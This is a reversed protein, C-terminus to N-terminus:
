KKQKQNITNRNSNIRNFLRNLTNMCILEQALVQIISIRIKRQNRSKKKMMKDKM